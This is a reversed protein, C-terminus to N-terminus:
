VQYKDKKINEIVKKLTFDFNLCHLEKKWYFKLIEKIKKTNTNELVVINEEIRDIIFM